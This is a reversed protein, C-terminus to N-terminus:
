RYIEKGIVYIKADSLAQIHWRSPEDFVFSSLDTVFMSKVAIWQSVEKSGDSNYAYFRILGEDVFGLQTAYQGRKLFFDGKRIEIAEFLSAMAALNVGSTDFYQQLHQHLSQM